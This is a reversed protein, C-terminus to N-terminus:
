DHTVSSPVRLKGLKSGFRDHWVSAKSDYQYHSITGTQVLEPNSIYQLM